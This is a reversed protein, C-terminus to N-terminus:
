TFAKENLFMDFVGVQKPNQWSGGSYEFTREM